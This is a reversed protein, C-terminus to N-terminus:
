AGSSTSSVASIGERLLMFFDQRLDSLSLALVVSILDVVDIFNIRKGDNLHLLPLLIGVFLSLKRAFSVRL